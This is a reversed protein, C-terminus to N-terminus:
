RGTFNPKRKEAFAKIGEMADECDRALQTMADEMRMGQELTMDLSRWTLEKATRVARPPNAAIRQALEIATDLLKEQPVVRNVLGWREAQAATIPDGTLLMELAPGMGIIRPLRQTAGVAPPFGLKIESLGMTANESAIRIDCGLALMLGAGLAYGNIAAIIPKWIPDGTLFTKPQPRWYNMIFGSEAVKKVDGGASFAKTGAGILVACWLDDDSSYETLSEYLDQGMVGLNLDNDGQMTLVLVRGFKQKHIM